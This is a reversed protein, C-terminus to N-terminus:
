RMFDLKKNSRTILIIKKIKRHTVFQKTVEDIVFKESQGYHRTDLIINV